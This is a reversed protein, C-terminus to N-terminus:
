GFLSLQVPQETTATSRWPPSDLRKKEQVSPVFHIGQESDEPALAPPL